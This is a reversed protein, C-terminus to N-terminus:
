NFFGSDDTGFDIACAPRGAARIDVRVPAVFGQATKVFRTPCRLRRWSAGVEEGARVLVAGVM